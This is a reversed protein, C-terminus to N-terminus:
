YFFFPITIQTKTSWLKTNNFALRYDNSYHRKVCFDKRLDCHTSTRPNRSFCEIKSNEKTINTNTRLIHSFIM